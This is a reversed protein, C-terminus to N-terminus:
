LIQEPIFQNETVRFISNRNLNYTYRALNALMNVAWMCDEPIDEKLKMTM